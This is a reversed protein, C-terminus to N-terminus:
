RFQFLPLFNFGDYHNVGDPASCGGMFMEPVFRETFVNAHKNALSQKRCASKHFFCCIM